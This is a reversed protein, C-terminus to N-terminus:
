SPGSGGPPRLATWGELSSRPPVRGRERTMHTLAPMSAVLLAFPVVAAWFVPVLYYRDPAVQQMVLRDLTIALSYSGNSWKGYEFITTGQSSRFTRNDVTFTTQYPDSTLEFSFRPPDLTLNSAPAGGNVTLSYESPIPQLGLSRYIASAYGDFSTNNRAQDPALGVEIRVPGGNFLPENVPTAVGNLWLETGTPTSRFTAYSWAGIPLVEPLVVTRTVTGALPGSYHLYTGNPYGDLTLRAGSGELTLIAQPHFTDHLLEFDFTYNAGAAWGSATLDYETTALGSYYGGPIGSSGPVALSSETLVQSQATAPVRSAGNLAPFSDNYVTVSYPYADIALAARPIIGGFAMSGALDVSETSFWRGFGLRPAAAAIHIADGTQEFTDGPIPRVVNGNGPIFSPTMAYIPATGGGHYQILDPSTANYVLSLAAILVLASLGYVAIQRRPRHFGRLPHAAVPEPRYAASPAIAGTRGKYWLILFSAAIALTISINFALLFGAIESSGSLLHPNSHFLDYGFFFVGTGDPQTNSIFINILLLGVLPYALLGWIWRFRLDSEKWSLAALLAFPFVFVYNDPMPVPNTYVFLTVVVFATAAEPFRLRRLLLPVILVLVAVIALYVTANLPLFYQLGFYGARTLAPNSGVLTSAYESPSGSFAFVTAAFLGGLIVTGYGILLGRERMSTSYYLLTPVLVLAYWYFFVSVAILTAGLLVRAHDPLTRHGYRLVIYGVALFAVPLIDYETWIYSVFLWVPNLLVFVVVAQALSESRARFVTYLAYAMWLTLAFYIVKFATFTWYIQYGSGVYALQGPVYMAYIFMGAVWHNYSSAPTASNFHSTVALALPVNNSDYFPLFILLANVVLAGTIWPHDAFWRLRELGRPYSLRHARPEGPHTATVDSM